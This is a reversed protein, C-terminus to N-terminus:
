PECSPNACLAQQEAIRSAALWGGLRATFTLLPFHATGGFTVATPLKVCSAQVHLKKSITRSSRSHFVHLCTRNHIVYHSSLNRRSSGLAQNGRDASNIVIIPRATHRSCIGRRGNDHLRIIEPLTCQTAWMQRVQGKIYGARQTEWVVVDGGESGTPTRKRTKM